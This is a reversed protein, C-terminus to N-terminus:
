WKDSSGVLAKAQHQEGKVWVEVKVKKDPDDKLAAVLTQTLAYGQPPASGAYKIEAKENFYRDTGVARYLIKDDLM